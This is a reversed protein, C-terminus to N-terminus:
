FTESSRFLMALLSADYATILFGLLLVHHRELSTLYWFKHVTPRENCPACIGCVSILIGQRIDGNDYAYCEWM